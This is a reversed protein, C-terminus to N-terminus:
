ERESIRPKPWTDVGLAAFESFEGFMLREWFVM